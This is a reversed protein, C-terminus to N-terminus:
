QAARPRQRPGVLRRNGKERHGAAAKQKRFDARLEEESDGSTPFAQAMEAASGSALALVYLPYATTLGTNRVQAALQSRRTAPVEGKELEAEARVVTLLRKDLEEDEGRVKDAETASTLVADWNVKPEALLGRVKRELEEFYLKRVQARIDEGTFQEQRDWLSKWM